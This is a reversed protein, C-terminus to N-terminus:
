NTWDRPSLDGARVWTDMLDVHGFGADRVERFTAAWVDTGADQMVTGDPRVAPFQLLAAAIPWDTATLAM